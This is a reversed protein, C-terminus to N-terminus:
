KMAEELDDLGGANTVDVWGSAKLMNAAVSSRGGSACFVVVAKDKSGVELMRNGLSGVPINRAGPYSGDQFEEPSRVDILQAGANLKQKTINEAM